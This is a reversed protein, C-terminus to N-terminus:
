LHLFVRFKSFVCVVLDFLAVFYV